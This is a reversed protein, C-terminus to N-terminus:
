LECGCRICLTKNRFQAHETFTVPIHRRYWWCQLFRLPNM